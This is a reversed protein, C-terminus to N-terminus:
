GYVEAGNENDEFVSVFQANFQTLLDTAIMECSKRGLDQKEWNKNIFLNVKQKMIIFEKDRDQHGVLWKMTVYFVHRHKQRLFAVSEFPCEPWHHIAEFSTNIVIYIKM